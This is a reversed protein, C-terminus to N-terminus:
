FPRNINRRPPAVSNRRNPRLAERGPRQTFTDVRRQGGM